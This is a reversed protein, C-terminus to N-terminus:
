SRAETWRVWRAGEIGHCTYCGFTMFLEKGQETDGEPASASGQERSTAQTAQGTSGFVLVVAGAAGIVGHPINRVHM